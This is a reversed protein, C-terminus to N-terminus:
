KGGHARHYALIAEFGQCFRRFRDRLEAAEGASSVSKIASEIEDVFDRFYEKKNGSVRSIQYRLRPIFLLVDPLKSNSFDGSMEIRKLSGYVNRIQSTSIAEVRRKDAWYKDAWGIFANDIGNEVASAFQGM